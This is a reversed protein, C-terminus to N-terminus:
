TVPITILLTASAKLSHLFIIAVIIALLLGIWLSDSVSKISDKVFDAQVYFPKITVDKPLIKQLDAIKADMDDSLSVVNANPQKIVAILVGDRQGNANVKIYEIGENVAIDAFDKLRVVRKRNNSIVLNALEDKANITADTVTLYFRKYDSLYGESKVFNTNSLTTNIIDPTLGLSSMKQKNLTLWYEKAKGGIVRIESVGDVQSLFPKITYTALQRLEIPSRSHSELTYGSVPLISPNMKAVTINVDAPLDNRIQDISSQVRQLDLDVDSGWNMFASIECSGRSTTSRVTKLDPVQKIANELPKTVTVMMKNVPQLGEDAIIKIKPFTIEPFLSTQLKSYCFLGGMVIIALVLLLPKRYFIFFNETKDLRTAM